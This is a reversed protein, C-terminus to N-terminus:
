SEYFIRFQRIRQRDPIYAPKAIWLIVVLLFPKEFKQSAMDSLTRQHCRSRDVQKLLILGAIGHDSCRNNASSVGKTSVPVGARERGPLRDRQEM